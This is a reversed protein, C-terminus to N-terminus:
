SWAAVKPPRAMAADPVVLAKRDRIDYSLARYPAVEQTSDLWVLQGRARSVALEGDHRVVRRRKM